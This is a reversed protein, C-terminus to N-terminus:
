INRAITIPPNNDPISIKKKEVKQEKVPQQQVKLDKINKDISKLLRNREVALDYLKDISSEMKKTDIKHIKTPTSQIVQEKVETVKEVKHVPVSKPYVMKPVTQKNLNTDKIKVNNIIQEKIDEQKVTKNKEKIVETKIKQTTKLQSDIENINKEFTANVSGIEKMIKERETPNTTVNLKDTLEKIKAKKDNVLKDRKSQLNKIDDKKIDTKKGSSDSTESSPRKDVDAKSLQPLNNTTEIDKPIHKDTDASSAIQANRLLMAGEKGEDPKKYSILAHWVVRDSTINFNKMICAGVKRLSEKQKDTYPEWGKDKSWACVMEIGISVVSGIQHYEPRRKGVHYVVSRIDGVLIITGDKDIWLQTGYGDKKMRGLYLHSGATNHIVLYKPNGNFTLNGAKEVAKKIPPLKKIKLGCLSTDTIHEKPLEVKVDGGTTTEKYKSGPKSEEADGELETKEFYDKSNKGTKPIGGFFEIATKIADLASNVLGSGTGSNSEERKPLSKKKIKNKEFEENMPSEALKDLERVKKLVKQMNEWSNHAVNSTSVYYTKGTGPNEISAFEKSLEYVFHKDSIIGQRWELYKRKLTLRKLILTDQAEADFLDTVKVKTFPFTETLSAQIFQYKGVAGSKKKNMLQRQLKLIEVITMKTPEPTVKLNLASIGNIKNYGKEGKASEHEAIAELLVRDGKTINPAKVLTAKETHMKDYAYNPNISYNYEDEKRVKEDYEKKRIEEAVQHKEERTLTSWERKSLPIDKSPTKEGISDSYSDLATSIATGIFPVLSTVSSLMSLGAKAYNGEAIQTAATAVGIATGVGPLHKLVKKSIKGVKGKLFNFMGKERQKVKVVDGALESKQKKNKEKTIHETAEEIEKIVKEDKDENNKDIDNKTLNNKRMRNLRQRAKLRNFGSKSKQLGKHASYGVGGGVELMTLINDVDDDSGDLITDEETDEVIEEQGELDVQSENILEEMKSPDIVEDANAETGHLMYAILAGIALKGKHKTLFGIAKNLTSGKYAKGVTKRGTRSISRGLRKMGLMSVMGGIIQALIGTSGIISRGFGKSLWKIPKWMATAIIEILGKGKFFKFFKGIGGAITGLIGVSKTVSSTLGSLIGPLFSFAGGILTGLWGMSKKDKEKDKKDTTITDEKDDKSKRSLIDKWGNDRDGDGDSDGVTKKKEPKWKNLKSMLTNFFSDAKEQEQKIEDVKDKSKVYTDKVGKKIDTYKFESIDNGVEKLRAKADKFNFKKLKKNRDKVLEETSKKINIIKKLYKKKKSDDPLTNIFSTLKEEEDILTKIKSNYFTEVTQYADSDEVKGKVSKYITNGKSKTTKSLSVVDDILIDLEKDKIFEHGKKRIEISKNIVDHEVSYIDSKNIYEKTDELKKKLDEYHTKEKSIDILTKKVINMKDKINKKKDEDSTALYEGHLRDYEQKAVKYKKDIYGIVLNYKEYKSMYKDLKSIINKVEGKALGLKETLYIDIKKDKVFQKSSGYMKTLKEEFKDKIDKVEEVRKRHEEDKKTIVIDESDYAEMIANVNFEKYKDWNISYTRTRSDYDVIGMEVLPQGFGDEILSNIKKSNELKTNNIVRLLEDTDYRRDSDSKHVVDGKENEEYFETNGANQIISMFKTKEKNDLGNFLGDERDVQESLYDVSIKGDFKSLSEIFKRREDETLNIGSLEELREAVSNFTYNLNGEKYKSILDDKINKGVDKDKIFKSELYYYKEEVADKDGGLIKLQRLIKSLLGPLVKNITEYTRNDFTALGSLNKKDNYLKTEPGDTRPKFISALFDLTSRTVGGEHQKAEHKLTDYPNSFLKDSYYRVKKGAKTKSLKNALIGFVGGRVNSAAIGAVMGEKTASARESASMFEMDEESATADNMQNYMEIGGEGATIGDIIATSFNNLKDKVNRKVDDIWESSRFINNYLSEGASLKMQMAIAETTQMKLGDPLSTNHIIADLKKVYDIAIESQRKNISKLEYLQKFNLRLSERYFSNNMNIMQLNSVNAIQLTENVKKLNEDTISATISTLKTNTEEMKNVFEGMTSSINNKIIEDETPGSSHHSKTIDAGILNAVKDTIKSLVGDTPLISKLSKLFPESGKAIKDKTDNIEWSADKFADVLDNGNKDGLLKPASKELAEQLNNKAKDTLGDGEGTINSLFSTKINEATSPVPKREGGVGDIDGDIDFEDMDFDFEDKAM